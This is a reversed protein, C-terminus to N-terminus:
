YPIMKEIIYLRSGSAGECLYHLECKRDTTRQDSSDHTAALLGLQPKFAQMFEWTQLAPLLPSLPNNNHVPFPSKVRNHRDFPMIKEVYISCLGFVNYVTCLLVDGNGSLWEGAQM